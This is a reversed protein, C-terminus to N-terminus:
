DVGRVIHDEFVALDEDAVLVCPGGRVCQGVPAPSGAPVPPVPPRFDFTVPTTDQKDAYKVDCM